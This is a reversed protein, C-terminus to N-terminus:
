VDAVAPTQVARERLREALAAARAGIDNMSSRRRDHREALFAAADTANMRAIASEADAREGFNGIMVSELVAAIELLRGALLEDISVNYTARMWEDPVGCFLFIPCATVGKEDTLGYAGSGLIMCAVAAIAPDDSKLTYADSPNIIEYIM